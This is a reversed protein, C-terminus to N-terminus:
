QSLGGHWAKATAADAGWIGRGDTIAETEMISLQSPPPTAGPKRPMLVKAYGDELMASVLSRGKKNSIEATIRGYRDRDDPDYVILFPGTDTTLSELHKTAASGLALLNEAALGTRKIDHQLKANDRDEPADIHALQLRESNGGITAIVTDGDAVTIRPVEITLKDAFAPTWILTLLLFLKIRM